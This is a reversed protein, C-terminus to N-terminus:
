ADREKQELLAGVERSQPATTVTHSKFGASAEPQCQFPGCEPAQGIPNGARRYAGDGLVREEIAVSTDVPHSGLAPTAAAAGEGHPTLASRIRREYDAQAAAKAKALTPYDGLVVKDRLKLYFRNGGHPICYLGVVSSALSEWAPPIPEERWELPKVAIATTM